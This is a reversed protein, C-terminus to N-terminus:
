AKTLHTLVTLLGYDYNTPLTYADDASPWGKFRKTSFLGWSGGYYMLVVPVSNYMVRELTYTAQTQASEDTASALTALAPDVTPDKFRECNNASPTNVPKAFSSNLAIHFATHPNGTCAFGGLAADFSVPPTAPPSRSPAHPPAPPRARRSRRFVATSKEVQRLPGARNVRATSEM